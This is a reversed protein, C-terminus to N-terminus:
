RIQPYRERFTKSKETGRVDIGAKKADKAFKRQDVILLAPTAAEIQRLEIMNLREERVEDSLTPDLEIEKKQRELQDITRYAASVMQAAMLDENGARLEAAKGYERKLELERLERNIEQGKSYLYRIESVLQGASDYTQVGAGFVAPLAKMGGFWSENEMADWIDQWAMPMLNDRLDRIANEQEFNVEEGLITEGALLNVFMGVAPSAKTRVLRELLTLRNTEM